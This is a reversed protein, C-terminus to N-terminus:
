GGVLRTVEARCGDLVAALVADALPGPVGAASARAAWRERLSQERAPDVAAPHHARKHAAVAQVAVLRRALAALLDDDAADVALRLDALDTPM